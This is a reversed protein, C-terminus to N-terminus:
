QSGSENNGLKEVDKKMKLCVCIWWRSPHWVIPMLEKEIERKCTKRQNYKNHWTFPNYFDNLDLINNHIVQLIKLTVFRVPVHMLILQSANVVKEPM